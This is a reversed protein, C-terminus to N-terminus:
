LSSLPAVDLCLFISHGVYEAPCTPVTIPNELTNNVRIVEVALAHADDFQILPIASTNRQSTICRM